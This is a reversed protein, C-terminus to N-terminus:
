NKLQINYYHIPISLQVERYGYGVDLSTIM